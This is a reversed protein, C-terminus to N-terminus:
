KYKAISEGAIKGFSIADTIGNGGLRNKGHVNGTVEGATYLGPIIHGNPRLVEGKDTIAIGGLTSHISM